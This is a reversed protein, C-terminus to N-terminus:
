ISICVSLLRTLQTQPTDSTTLCGPMSIGTPKGCAEALTRQQKAEFQPRQKESPLEHPWGEYALVICGISKASNGAMTAAAVFARYFVPLGSPLSNAGEEARYRDPKRAKAV